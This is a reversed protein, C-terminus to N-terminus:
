FTAPLSTPAGLRLLDSEGDDVCEILSKEVYVADITSSDYPDDFDANIMHALLSAAEDLYTAILREAQNADPATVYFTVPISYSPM